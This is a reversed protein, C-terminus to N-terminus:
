LGPRVGSRTRFLRYPCADGQGSITRSFSCEKGCSLIFSMKCQNTIGDKCQTFKVNEKQWSPFIASVVQYAGDFLQGSSVEVDVFPTTEILQDLAKAEDLESRSPPHAIVTNPPM